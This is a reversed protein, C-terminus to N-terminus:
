RGIFFGLGVSFVSYAIFLVPMYWIVTYASRLEGVDSAVGTTISIVVVAYVIYALKVFIKDKSM